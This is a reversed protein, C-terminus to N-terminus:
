RPQQCNSQCIALRRSNDPYSLRCCEFCSRRTDCEPCEHPGEVRGRGARTDDGCDNPAPYSSCKYKNGVQEICTQRLSVCDCCGQMCIKYADSGSTYFTSCCEHCEGAKCESCAKEAGSTVRGDNKGDPTEHKDNNSRRGWRCGYAAGGPEVAELGSIFDISEVPIDLLISDFWGQMSQNELLLNGCRLGKVDAKAATIILIALGLVFRKYDKM